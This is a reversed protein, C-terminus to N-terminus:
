IDDTTINKPRFTQCATDDTVSTLFDPNTPKVHISSAKCETGEQYMCNNVSCKIRPM